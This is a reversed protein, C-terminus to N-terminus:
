AEGQYRSEHEAQAVTQVYNNNAFYEAGRKTKFPGVIYLYLMRQRPTGTRIAKFPLSRGGINDCGIYFRARRTTKM